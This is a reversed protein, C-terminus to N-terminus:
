VRIFKDIAKLCSSALAGTGCENGASLFQRKRYVAEFAQATVLAPVRRLGVGEKAFRIVGRQHQHALGPLRGM